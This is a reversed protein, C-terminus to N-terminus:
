RGARPPARTPRRRPPRGCSRRRSGRRAPASPRPGRSSASGARGASRRARAPRARARTARLAVPRERPPLDGAAPHRQRRVDCGRLGAPPAPRPIARHLHVRLPQRARRPPPLGRAPRRPHDRPDARRMGHCATRHRADDLPVSPPPRPAPHRPDHRGLEPREGRARGRDAAPPPAAPEDRPVPRPAPEPEPDLPCRGGLAPPTTSELAPDPAPEPAGLYAAVAARRDRLYARTALVANEWDRDGAGGLAACRRWPAVTAAIEDLRTGPGAGEAAASVAALGDRFAQMCALDARCRAILIAGGNGPLNSPYKFAEDLGSALMSFRGSEDSHLYLLQRPWLSGRTVSYSDWHGIFHEGAWLRTLETRDAVGALGDWWGDAPASAAGILAELDALDDEDGEDVEYGGAGGPAVDVGYDDAEYLHGTSAFLRPLSVSDYAELDLYLGYPKGDVRVYAFGTRPAPLAAARLLEYGLTEHVMSPDQAMNNLTMKRLGLMRGTKPFKVNFSAKGGLPRFSGKGKLKVEAPKPGVVRDGITLSVNAPVYERPEAILAQRAEDSLGIDVLAVRSPDYLVTADDARAAAPFAPVTLAVIAATLQATRM